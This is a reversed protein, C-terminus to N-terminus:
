SLCLIESIKSSVKLYITPGHSEVINTKQPAKPFHTLVLNNVQGANRMVANLTIM